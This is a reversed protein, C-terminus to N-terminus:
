QCIVYITIAQQLHLAQPMQEGGDLMTGPSVTCHESICLNKNINGPDM